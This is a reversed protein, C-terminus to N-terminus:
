QQKTKQHLVKLIETINKGQDFSANGGLYWKKLLVENINAELYNGKRLRIILDFDSGVELKEDFGKMDLITHKRILLSSPVFSRHAMEHDQNFFNPKEVNKGWFFQQNCTVWTCYPDELMIKWQESIKEPLWEDDQDLFAILEGNSNKIGINRAKSVGHNEQTILKIDPYKQAIHDGGNDKSGDDVM